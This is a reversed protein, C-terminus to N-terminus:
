FFLFTSQIHSFIKMLSWRQIPRLFMISSQINLLWRSYKYAHFSGVDSLRYTKEPSITQSLLRTKHIYVWFTSYITQSQWIRLLLHGIKQLKQFAVYNLPLFVIKKARPSKMKKLISVASKSIKMKKWTMCAIKTKLKEIIYLKTKCFCKLQCFFIFFERAVVTEKPNSQM